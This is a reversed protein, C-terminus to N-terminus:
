GKIIENMSIHWALYNYWVVLPWVNYIPSWQGTLMCLIVNYSINDEGTSWDVTSSPLSTAKMSTRSQEGGVYSVIITIVCVKAIHENAVYKPPFVLSVGM